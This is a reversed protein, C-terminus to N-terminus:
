MGMVLDNYNTYLSIATIDGGEIGDQEVSNMGWSILGVLYRTNGDKSMTYAFGGSDGGFTPVAAAIGHESRNFIPGCKGSGSTSGAVCVLVGPELKSVDALKYDAGGDDINAIGSVVEVDSDLPIVAWDEATSKLYKYKSPRGLYNGFNDEVYISSESVGLNQAHEKICHGATILYMTGDVYMHDGLTCRTYGNKEDNLIRLTDGVKLGRSTGGYDWGDLYLEGGDFMEKARGMDKSLDITAAAANLNINPGDWGVPYEKDKGGSDDRTRTSTTSSETAATTTASATATPEPTSSTETVTVTTSSSTSNVTPSPAPDAACGVLVSAGLVVSVAASLSRNTRM